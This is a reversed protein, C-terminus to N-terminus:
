DRLIDQLLRFFRWMGCYIVLANHHSVVALGSVTQRFRRSKMYM